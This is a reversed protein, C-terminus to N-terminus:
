QQGVVVKMDLSSPRSIHITNSNFVTQSRCKVLKIKYIKSRRLRKRHDALYTKNKNKKMLSCIIRQVVYTVNYGIIITYLM